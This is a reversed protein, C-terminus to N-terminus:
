MPNNKVRQAMEIAMATMKEFEAEKPSCTAEASEGIREWKMRDGFEEITKVGGGSWSKCGFIGLYRNKLGNHEIKLLVQEMAPFIYSNYACSGLIVGKYKTIESIVYSVHTKSADFLKINKIGQESLVRAIYDAMKATNGYMTSYVVVVGEEAEYRSWKDYYNIITEPCTRWIPGHTPCIIKIDLGSLKKLAAQVIPSYRAVINSYYRRIEDEYQHIHVEDDFIGGDLSGFGGFADMSFLIKSTMDYSMMTEPWHIMPTMYFKIQHVGLDLVDGEGIEYFYSPDISYFGQIMQFTKKNGVIKVNPFNAIVALMSGSHDPEMHNVILYDVPKDGIIEKIKAIFQDTKNFKVTDMLAVKEDDILYSNYAVGKELPWYNEFLTTERDNVGIWHVNDVIPVRCDM